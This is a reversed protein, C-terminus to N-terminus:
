ATVQIYEEIRENALDAWSRGYFEGQKECIGNDFAYFNRNNKIAALPISGYGTTLDLITM